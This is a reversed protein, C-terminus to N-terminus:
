DEDLWALQADQVGFDMVRQPAGTGFTMRAGEARAAITNRTPGPASSSSMAGRMGPSAMSATTDPTVGSAIAPIKRPVIVCQFSGASAFSVGPTFSGSAGITAASSSELSLTRAAASSESM